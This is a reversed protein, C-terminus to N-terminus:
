KERGGRTPVCALLLFDDDWEDIVIGCQCTSPVLEGGYVIFTALLSKIHQKKYYYVFLNTQHFSPQNSRWYAGSVTDSEHMSTFIALSVLASGSDILGVISCHSYDGFFALPMSLWM